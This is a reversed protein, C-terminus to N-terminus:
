LASGIAYIDVVKGAMVEVEVFEGPILALSEATLKAKDYELILTKPEVRASGTYRQRAENLIMYGQDSDFGVLRGTFIGAMKDDGKIVQGAGTSHKVNPKYGQTGKQHPRLGSLMKEACGQCVTYAVDDFRLKVHRTLIVEECYDCVIRKEAM